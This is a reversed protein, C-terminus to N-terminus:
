PKPAKNPKGSGGEPNGISGSQTLVGVPGFEILQPAIYPVRKGNEREKEPKTLQKNVVM